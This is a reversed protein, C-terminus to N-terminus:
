PGSITIAQALRALLRIGLGGRLVVRPPQLFPAHLVGVCGGPVRGRSENASVRWADPPLTPIGWCTRRASRQLKAIIPSNHRKKSNSLITM